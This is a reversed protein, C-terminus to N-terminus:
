WPRPGHPSYAPPVENGCAPLFGTSGFPSKETRLYVKAVNISIIQFSLIMQTEELIPFEFVLYHQSPSPGTPLAERMKEQLSPQTPCHSLTCLSSFLCFSFLSCAHGGITGWPRGHIGWPREHDGMAGRIGGHGRIAEPPKGHGGPSAEM